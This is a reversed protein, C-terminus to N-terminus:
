RQKVKRLILVYKASIYLSVLTYVFIGGSLPSGLMVYLLAFHGLMWLMIFGSEVKWWPFGPKPKNMEQVAKIIDEDTFEPDPEKWPDPEESKLIKKIDKLIKSL